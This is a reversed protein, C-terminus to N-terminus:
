FGKNSLDKCLASYFAYVKQRKKKNAMFDVIQTHSISDDICEGKYDGFISSDKSVVGDTSQEQFYHSFMLPIGMVFDDKSKKLTTSFSQCYVKDSINMAEDNINDIKKLEKCVEYSNPKKDGGLRYWFDIWFAAFKLMWKPFKLIKTAIISGRHPTCLTTLSAVKDEMGLDTILYKSDLGGKSHAIINIKDTKEVELIHDIEKKLFIANDEITGFADIKSRYVIYGEEKLNKDIRGFSKFYAIDRFGAGHVLIIPYKTKM